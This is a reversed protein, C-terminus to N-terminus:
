RLFTQLTTSSTDLIFIKQLSYKGNEIDTALFDTWHESVPLGTYLVQLNNKPETINFLFHNKQIKNQTGSM